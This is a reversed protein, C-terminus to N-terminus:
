CTSSGASREPCAKSRASDIRRSGSGPSSGPAIFRFRDVEEIKLIQGSVVVPLSDIEQPGTRVAEETVERHESVIFRGTANAGNANAVQWRYVGPKTGSPITLKAPTERPLLFPGRRAKKGFWYPPEPVIVQGPSGAAELRIQPDHVFLEIDPTWNYGGLM